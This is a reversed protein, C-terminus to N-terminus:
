SASQNTLSWYLELEEVVKLFNDFEVPKVIYSNAHLDYATQIDQNDESTTLVVVPICHYKPHEKFAKLVQLGHIKPLNLDLLIVIPLEEGADWRDIWAIAEEGDEAIQIPNLLKRRKLARISLEIDLPNDEIYLIPRIM